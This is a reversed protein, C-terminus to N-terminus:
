HKLSRHTDRNDSGRDRDRYRRKSSYSRREDTDEYAHRRRKDNETRDRDSQSDHYHWKSLKRDRSGSRDRRSPDHRSRDPSQSRDRRSLSHRKHEHSRNGDRNSAKYREQEASRYRYRKSSSHQIPETSRSQDRISRRKRRSDDGDELKSQGNRSDLELNRDKRENADQEEIKQNEKRTELEEETIMEGTVSNKLLVPNYIKEIKRKVKVAKGWAGLEELGDPLEKAGIGLLAPRRALEKPKKVQGSKHDSAQPGKWGMGRLMASGFEDVPVAAYDDLTAPNPRSAVDSRFADDEDGRQTWADGIENNNGSSPLILMCSKGRNGLLADMAEDEETRLQETHLTSNKASSADAVFIDGKADRDKTGVLTLGFNPPVDDNDVSGISQVERARAAQLEPPLLNKGKRKHSEERWNLNKQPQIVLPSKKQDHDNLSIAGGASHDFASVLQAKPFNDDTESDDEALSSHPRKRSKIVPKPNSLVPKAKSLSLSFPKLSSAAATKTDAVDLSEASPM